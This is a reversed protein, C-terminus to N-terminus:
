QHNKQGNSLGALISRHRAVLKYGIKIVWRFPWQRLTSATRRYGLAELIYICAEGGQLLRGDHFRVHLAQQCCRYLEPTMPPSPMEQM